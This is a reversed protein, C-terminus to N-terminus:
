NKKAKSKQAALEFQFGDKSAEQEKKRVGDMVRNQLEARTLPKSLDDGEGDGLNEYGDSNKVSNSLLIISSFFPKFNSVM